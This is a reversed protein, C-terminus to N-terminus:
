RKYLVEPEDLCSAKEDGESRAVVFLEPSRHMKKLNPGGKM